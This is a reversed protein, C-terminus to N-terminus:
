VAFLQVVSILGLLDLSADDALSKATAFHGTVSTDVSDLSCSIKDDSVLPPNTLGYQHRTFPRTFVLRWQPCLPMHVTANWSLLTPAINISGLVM